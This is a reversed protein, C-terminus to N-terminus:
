EWHGKGFALIVFSAAIWSEWNLGMIASLVGFVVCTLYYVSIWIM